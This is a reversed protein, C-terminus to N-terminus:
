PALSGLTAHGTVGFIYAGIQASRGPHRFRLSTVAAGVSRQQAVADRDDLRDRPTAADGGVMDVIHHLIYQQGNM